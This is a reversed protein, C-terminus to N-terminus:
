AFLSLSDNEKDYFVGCARLANITPEDIVAALAELDVDLWIEDHEACSIIDATKGPILQELILFACLDRRTSLRLPVPINNFHTEDDNDFTDALEDMTM